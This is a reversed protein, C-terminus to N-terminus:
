FGTIFPSIGLYIGFAIMFIGCLVLLIYYIKKNLANKGLAVIISVILYWSLDGFEHGIFFAILGAPNTFSINYANMFAFGVAAWWFWWYPNSMSVLIGGLVPNEIAMKLDKKSEISTGYSETSSSIQLTSETVPINQMNSLFDTPIRNNKVDLIVSIGFFILLSGGLVGIIKLVIANRLFTSLGWLLVLILSLELIAHGIIIWVGMLWAHSKTKISKIITYTLLPGPSMAGTLAVLFSFSLVIWFQSFEM